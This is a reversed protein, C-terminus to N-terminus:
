AGNPRSAKVPETRPYAPETPDLLARLASKLSWDDGSGRWTVVRGRRGLAEQVHHEANVTGVTNVVVLLRAGKHLQKLMTPLAEAHYALTPDRRWKTEVFLTQDALTVAFRPVGRSHETTTILADPMLRRIATQIELDYEEAPHLPISGTRRLGDLRRMLSKLEDVTAASDTAAAADIQTNITTMVGEWPVERGTSVARTMAVQGLVAVVTCLAGVVILAVAGANNHSVFTAVGGASWSAAGAVVLFLRARPVISGAKPVDDSPMAPDQCVARHICQSPYTVIERRFIANVSDLDV